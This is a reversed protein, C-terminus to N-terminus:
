VHYCTLQAQHSQMERHFFFLLLFYHFSTHTPGNPSWDSNSLHHLEWYSPNGVKHSEEILMNMRGSGEGTSFTFVVKCNADEGEM